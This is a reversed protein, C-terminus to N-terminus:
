TLVNVLQAFFAAKCRNMSACICIDVSFSGVLFHLFGARDQGFFAAFLAACCLLLFFKQRFNAIRLRFEDVLTFIYFINLGDNKSM